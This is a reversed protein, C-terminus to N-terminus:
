LFLIRNLGPNDMRHIALDRESIVSAGTRLFRSCFSSNVGVHVFASQALDM